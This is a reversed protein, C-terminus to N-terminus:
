AEKSARPAGTGEEPHSLSVGPAPVSADGQAHKPRLWAPTDPRARLIKGTGEGASDASVSNALVPAGGACAATAPTGSSPRRAAVTSCRTNPKSLKRSRWSSIMECTM